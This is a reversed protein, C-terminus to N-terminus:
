IETNEIAKNIERSVNFIFYIIDYYRKLMDYYKSEIVMKPKFVEGTHFRIYIQEGKITLEYRIKNKEKFELMMKIVDATLIQMAMIKNESFVDFNKEFESSDMEIRANGLIGQESHIKLEAGIDKVCQVNVFIGRFRLKDDKSACVESMLMNYKGDLTTKLANKSTYINYDEFDGKDYINSEIGMNPYYELNEDIKKTLQKVYPVIVREKSLAIFDQEYTHKVGDIAFLAIFPICISAPHICFGLITAIIAIIGITTEARKIKKNKSNELIKLEENNEKYIQEYIDDFSKM